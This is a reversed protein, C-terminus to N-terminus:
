GAAGTSQLARAFAAVGLVRHGGARLAAACAGATAGTTVVDDVLVAREPGRARRGDRLAFRGRANRVRERRDLRAQRRGGDPRVLLDRRPWGTARSLATALRGAQNFGRERRRAPALPVPVLVAGGTRGALRRAAGAMSRGMPEALAFWGSFKLARVLRAAAGDMRFPAAARGEALPWERCEVCGSTGPLELVRPAGCRPCLPPELRPLRHRCLRCLPASGGPLLRRCLVCVPPFLRDFVRAPIGRRRGGSREGDSTGAGADAGGEAGGDSTM